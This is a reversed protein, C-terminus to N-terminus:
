QIFKLDQFVNFTITKRLNIFNDNKVPEEQELRTAFFYVNDKTEIYGTYWGVDKTKVIGYGTKARLIYSDTRKEIMLNKVINYTRKSLPYKEEYLGTLFKIQEVPSITLTNDLWFYDPKGSLEQNGYHFEKLYKKYKDIGVRRSMEQHFWVTSNKYATKLDTDANHTEFERKVGDWKLVENEDRVANEEITILSNPIKFTSAPLTRRESDKKDSYIWKKNKYDYITISGKINSDDFYKQLNEQKSEASIEEATNNEAKPQAMCMITSVALITVLLIKKMNIEGKKSKQSLILM